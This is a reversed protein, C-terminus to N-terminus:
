PKLCCMMKPRKGNLAAETLYREYNKKCNSRAEM